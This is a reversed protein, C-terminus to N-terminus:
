ELVFDEVLVAFYPTALARDQALYRLFRIFRWLHSSTVTNQLIGSLKFLEGTMLGQIYCEGVLVYNPGSRRIVIPVDTGLFVCVLDGVQTKPPALGMYGQATIIFRRSGEAPNLRREFEKQGIKEHPTATLTRYFAEIQTGGAIYSRKQDGLLSLWTLTPDMDLEQTTSGITVINDVLTGSITLTNNPGFSYQPEMGLSAQFFDTKSQELSHLPHWNMAETWDPVWSPMGNRRDPHHCFSLIDLTKKIRMAGRSDWILEKKSRLAANLDKADLFTRAAKIYLEQFSISYNPSFTSVDFDGLLGLGRDESFGTIAFIKDRPDTAQKPRFAHLTHLFSQPLFGKGQDTNCVHYCGRFLDQVWTIAQPSLGIASNCGLLATFREDNLLDSQHNILLRASRWFYSWHMRFYGCQVEVNPSSIVEQIVWIRSTWSRTFLNKIAKFTRRDPMGKLIIEVPPLKSETLSGLWLGNSDEIWDMDPWNRPLLQNWKTCCEMALTSDDEEAGMFVITGTAGKYIQRMFSVQSGKEDNDTQNICLADIWLDRSVHRDRLHRLASELNRTVSFSIGNVSITAPNAPSGWTYSLATFPVNDDISIKRLTCQLAAAKDKAPALRCLRIEHRLPDLPHYLGTAM